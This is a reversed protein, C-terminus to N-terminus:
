LSFSIIIKHARVLKITPTHNIPLVGEIEASRQELASLHSQISASSAWRTLGLDVPSFM